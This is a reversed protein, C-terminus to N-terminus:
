IFGKSWDLAMRMFCPMFVSSGVKVLSFYFMFLHQKRIEAFAELKETNQVKKEKKSQTDM